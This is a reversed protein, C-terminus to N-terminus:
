SPPIQSWGAQVESQHPNTDLPHDALGVRHARSQWFTLASCERGQEAGFVPPRDPEAEDEDEGRGKAQEGHNWLRTSLRHVGQIGKRVKSQELQTSEREPKTHQRCDPDPGHALRDGGLKM